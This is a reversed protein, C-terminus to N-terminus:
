HRLERFVSYSLVAPVRSKLLSRLEVMIKDKVHEAKENQLLSVDACTWLWSMELDCKWAGKLLKEQTQAIEGKEEMLDMDRASPSCQASKKLMVLQPFSVDRATRIGVSCTISFLQSLRGKLRGNNPM